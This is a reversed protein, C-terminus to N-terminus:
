RSLAVNHDTLANIRAVLPATMARFQVLSQSTLPVARPLTVTMPNKHLGNVLFEYHLHPATALGSSGVFGIIQGQRVRAGAKIGPKFRSLHAYLTQNNGSHRVVIVNGYGGKQGLFEIKGDGTAHVPTGTAAAYDVGKHARIINLIPHRRQLNFGSSIRVFDVPTRIFAKRLSEGAPTYYGARGEADVYRVARYTKGQNTFEAALIDGERLKRGDKLINDYVVVFRDGEQLDQAFDIDYGFIDAFELIMRNSLGAKRGDAFLSSRIQGVSEAQRHELEATLTTSEYGVGHRRVSLTRTEDIAYTLEELRGSVIRLNLVDGVKLKKLLASDGGLRTMLMWDQPPLGAQEFINSLSHGREIRVRTWAAPEPVALADAVANQIIDEFMPNPTAGTNNGAQTSEAPSSGVAVSIASLDTQEQSSSFPAFAVVAAAAVGLFAALVGIRRLSSNRAGAASSYNGSMFVWSNLRTRCASAFSRKRNENTQPDPLDYCFMFVSRQCNKVHDQGHSNM